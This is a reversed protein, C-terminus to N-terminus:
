VRDHRGGRERGGSGMRRARKKSQSTDNRINERAGQAPQIGEGPSAAVATHGTFPGFQETRTFCFFVLM